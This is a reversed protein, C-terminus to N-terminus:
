KWDAPPQSSSHKFALLCSEKIQWLESCSDWNPRKIFLEKVDENSLYIQKNEVSSAYFIGQAIGQGSKEVINTRTKGIPPQFLSTAGEKQSQITKWYEFATRSLSMQKVEMRYKIQFPWYEIPVYAIKINKFKGNSIFVNDSVYPKDEFQNVWCVCCECSGVTSLVGIQNLIFGSCPRPDPFCMDLGGGPVAVAKKHLEPYTNIEYTGTFKWRFFNDGETVGQADAYVRFGYQTPADLPQFAELQYYLSDVSGAPSMKDPISEYVKGDLTEVRLSYERGVEGRIGNPNTQYIGAEILTLDEASGANDSITVRKAVIPKRFQLFGDAKSSLSLKVMYPGPEDTILGDVVLQSSFSDPVEINIRDICSTASLIGLTFIGIRM